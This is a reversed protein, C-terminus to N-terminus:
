GLQGNQVPPPPRITARRAVSLEDRLRALSNRLERLAARQDRASERLAKAQRVVSRLLPADLLGDCAATDAVLTTAARSCAEVGAQVDDLNADISAMRERLTMQAAGWVGYEPEADTELHCDSGNLRGDVFVAGRCVHLAVVSRNISMKTARAAPLVDM